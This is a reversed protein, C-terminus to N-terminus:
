GFDVAQAVDAREPLPLDKIGDAEQAVVEKPSIGIIAFSATRRYSDPCSQCSACRHEAQEGAARM